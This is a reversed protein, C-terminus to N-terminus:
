FIVSHHKNTGNSDQAKTVSATRFRKGCGNWGCVFPKEGTHIRIHDTLNNERTLVTGCIDCPFPM